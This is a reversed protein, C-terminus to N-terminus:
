AVIGELPQRNMIRQAIQRNEYFWFQLGVTVTLAAGLLGWMTSDWWFDPIGNWQAAIAYMVAEGLCGAVSCFLTACKVLHRWVKGAPVLLAPIAFFWALTISICHMYPAYGCDVLLTCANDM